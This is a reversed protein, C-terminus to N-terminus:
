SLWTELRGVFIFSYVFINCIYSLFSTRQIGQFGVMPELSYIKKEKSVWYLFVLGCWHNTNPNKFRYGILYEGLVNAM